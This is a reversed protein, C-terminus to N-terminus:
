EAVLARLLAEPEPLRGVGITRCAQWGSAPQVIQFGDEALQRLNRQTAPQRWMADNMSPALLVRARSRDISAVLLSVIDDARGAAFRSLQDMTCPAVLMLETREAVAIHQPDGPSQQSWLSTLVPKGSLAEFTLPGVFKTAGESMAVQVEAGVQALASVVSCVKYAAIGAGVGVLVRRQALASRLTALLEATVTM